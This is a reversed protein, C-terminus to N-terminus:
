TANHYNPGGALYLHSVNSTSMPARFETFKQNVPTQEDEFKRHSSLVQITTSTNLNKKKGFPLFFFKFRIAPVLDEPIFLDLINKQDVEEFSM